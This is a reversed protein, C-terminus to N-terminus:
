KQFLNCAKRYVLLAKSCIYFAKVFVEAESLAKNRAQYGYLGANLRCAIPTTHFFHGRNVM